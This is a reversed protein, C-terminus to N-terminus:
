HTGIDCHVHTDHTQTLTHTHTHETHTHTTNTHTLRAHTTDTHTHLALSSRYGQCQVESHKAVGGTSVLLIVELRLQQTCEGLLLHRRCTAALTIKSTVCLSSEIEGSAGFNM